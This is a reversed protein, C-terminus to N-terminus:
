HLQLHTCALLFCSVLMCAEQPVVTNSMLMHQSKRSATHDAPPAEAGEATCCSTSAKRRWSGKPVPESSATMSSATPALSTCASLLRAARCCFSASQHTM